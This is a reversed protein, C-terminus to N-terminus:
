KYHIIQINNEHETSTSMDKAFPSLKIKEMRIRRNKNIQIKKSASIESIRKIQTIISM